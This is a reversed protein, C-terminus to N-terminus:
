IKPSLPNKIDVGHTHIFIINFLVTLLITSKFEAMYNLTFSIFM